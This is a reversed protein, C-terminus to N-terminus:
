ENVWGWGYSLKEAPPSSSINLPFGSGFAEGSTRAGLGFLPLSFCLSEGRSRQGSLHLILEKKLNESSLGHPTTGTEERRM